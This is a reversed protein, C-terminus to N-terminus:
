RRLAFFITLISAALAVAGLLFKWGADLGSGRGESRDVRARLEEIKDSNAKVSGAMQERIAHFEREAETRPMQNKGVDELSGRFENAKEQAYKTAAEQANFREDYRKDNGEIISKHHAFKESNLDREANIREDLRREADRLRREYGDGMLSDTM